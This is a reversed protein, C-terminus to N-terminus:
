ARGRDCEGGRSIRALDKSNELGRNEVTRRLSIQDTGYGRADDADCYGPERRENGGRQREPGHRPDPDEFTRTDDSSRNTELDAPLLRRELRTTNRQLRLTSCRRSLMLRLVPPQEHHYVPGRIPQQLFMDHPMLEVGDMQSEDLDTFTEPLDQVVLHGRFDPHDRKLAVLDQGKGGGVDVVRVTDSNGDKWTKLDVVECWAKRVSSKRSEMFQDFAKKHDAHNELYQFMSQGDYTARFPTVDGPKDAFQKLGGPGHLQPVLRGAIPFM